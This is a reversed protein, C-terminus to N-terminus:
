ICHGGRDARYLQSPLPTLTEPIQAIGNSDANSFIVESLLRANRERRAAQSYTSLLAAGRIVGLPCQQRCGLLDSIFILTKYNSWQMASIHIM